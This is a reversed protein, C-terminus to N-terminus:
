REATNDGYGQNFERLFRIAGAVGLREQLALLGERRLQESSQPNPQIMSDGRALCFQKRPGPLALLSMQGSTRTRTRARKPSLRAARSGATSEASAPTSFPLYQKPRLASGTRIRTMMPDRSAAHILISACRSEQRPASGRRSMT